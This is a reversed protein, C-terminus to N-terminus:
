SNPHFPYRVAIAKNAWMLAEELKTYCLSAERGPPLTEELIAELAIFAERNRSTEDLGHSEVQRLTFRDSEM